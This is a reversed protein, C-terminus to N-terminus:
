FHVDKNFFPNSKIKSTLSAMCESKKKRLYAYTIGLSSAIQEQHKSTMCLKIIERCREGLTELMEMVVNERELKWLHNAIQNESEDEIHFVDELSKTVQLQQKKKIVNLWKRKCVMSLFNEFTTTLQYNRNKTMHYIDVLSEQLIDYGDDETGSNHIIMVVIKRAYKKYIQDIGKRNNNRLYELYLQDVHM